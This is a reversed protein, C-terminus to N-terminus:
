KKIRERANSEKLVIKLEVGMKKAIEPDNKIRKYLRVDVMRNDVTM